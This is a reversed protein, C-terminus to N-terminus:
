RLEALSPTKTEPPLTSGNESLQFISMLNELRGAEERVHGSSRTMEKVHM